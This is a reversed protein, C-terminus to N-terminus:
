NDTYVVGKSYYGIEGAVLVTYARGNEVALVNSSAPQGDAARVTSVTVSGSPVAVYEGAEGFKIAGASAAGVTAVLASSGMAGNVVRVAAGEIEAPISDKILAARIGYTGHDGYLLISYREGSVYDVSFSEVVQDTNFAKTLSLIQPGSRLSRYASVSTFRAQQVVVASEASSIVDVPVADIAAPLVRVGTGGSSSGGGGGGGGGGCAGAGAVLLLLAWSALLGRAQPALPQSTRTRTHNAM